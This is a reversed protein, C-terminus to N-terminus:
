TLSDGDFTPLREQGVLDSEEQARKQAEPHLAICFFAISFASQITEVGAFDLTLSHIPTQLSSM